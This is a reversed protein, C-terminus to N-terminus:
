NTSVLDTQFRFCVPAHRTQQSSVALQRWHGKGPRSTRGLKTAYREFTEIRPEEPRKCPYRVARNRSIHLLCRKRMEHSLRFSKAPFGTGSLFCIPSNRQYKSHAGGSITSDKLDQRYPTFLILIVHSSIWTSEQVNYLWKQLMVQWQALCTSSCKTKAKGICETSTIPRPIPRSWM